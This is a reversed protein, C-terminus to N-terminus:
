CFSGSVAGVGPEPDAGRDESLRALEDIAGIDLVRRIGYACTRLPDRKALCDRLTM